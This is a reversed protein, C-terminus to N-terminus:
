YFLYAGLIVVAGVTMALAYNQAQGSQLLRTVWGGWAVGRAVGNVAGDIVAVDVKKWLQDAAKMMPKVFAQDYAEDVYWKHLSGQYLSQWQRAFQDPLHPSKVYLVYAGAIGLLGMVTACAMIGM